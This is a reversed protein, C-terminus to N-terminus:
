FVLYAWDVTFKYILFINCLRSDKDIEQIVPIRIWRSNNIEM